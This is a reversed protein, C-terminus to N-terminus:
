QSGARLKKAAPESSPSAPEDRAAAAEDDSEFTIPEEASGEREDNSETEDGRDDGAESDELSSDDSDEDSSSQAEYDDDEDDSDEEIAQPEGKKEALERRLKARCPLLVDRIFKQVGELEDKRINSFEFAPPKAPKDDDSTDWPREMEVMLDFSSCNGAGARGCDISAIAECPLFVLPKLFLIGLDVLHLNGQAAGLTAKVYPLSSIASKFSMPDKGGKLLSRNAVKTLSALHPAVNALTTTTGPCPTAKSYKDNVTLALSAKKFADQMLKSTIKTAPKPTTVSAALLLTAAESPQSKETPPLTFAAKMSMFPFEGKVAGDKPNVVVIAHDGVRLTAKGRPQLCTADCTWRVEGLNTESAAKRADVIRQECQKVLAKLETSLTQAQDADATAVLQKLAALPGNIPKEPSVSKPPAPPAPSTIKMDTAAPPATPPAVVEM